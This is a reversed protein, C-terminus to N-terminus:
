CKRRPNRHYFKPYNV